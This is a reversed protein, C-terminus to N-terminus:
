PSWSFLRGPLARHKMIRTIDALSRNMGLDVNTVDDPDFHKRGDLIVLAPAVRQVIKVLFFVVEFFHFIKELPKIVAVVWPHGFVGSARHTEIETFSAALPEHLVRKAEFGALLEVKALVSQVAAPAQNSKECVM